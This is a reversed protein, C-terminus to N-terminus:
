GLNGFPCDLGAQRQLLGLRKGSIGFEEPMAGSIASPLGQSPMVALYLKPKM